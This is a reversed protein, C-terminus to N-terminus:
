NQRPSPLVVRFKDLGPIQGNPVIGLEDNRIEIPFVNSFLDIMPELPIISMLNLHQGYGLVVPILEQCKRNLRGSALFWQLEPLLQESHVKVATMVWCSDLEDDRKSKIAKFLTRLHEVAESRSIDGYAALLGIASIGTSRTLPLLKTDLLTNRFNKCVGCPYASAEIIVPNPM